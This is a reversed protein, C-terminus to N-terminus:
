EDLRVEFESCLACLSHYVIRGDSAHRISHGPHLHAASHTHMYCRACLISGCRSHMDVAYPTAISSWISELRRLTRHNSTSSACNHTYLTNRVAHMQRCLGGVQIGLRDLWEISQHVDGHAPDHFQFRFRAGWHCFDTSVAVVTGEQSLLSALRGGIRAEARASLAGVVIPVITYSRHPGMVHQLFPIHMEISHEEEDEDRDMLTFDRGDVLSDVAETDVQVRGLPSDFHSATSLVCNPYHVHHSPGIIIIRKVADPNLQCYARAATPGSFRLGAHPGVIVKVDDGVASEKSSAAFMGALQKRLTSSDASYWSGAHRPQRVSVSRSKM